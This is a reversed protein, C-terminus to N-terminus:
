LAWLRWDRDITQPVSLTQDSTNVCHVLSECYDVHSADNAASFTRMNITQGTLRHTFLCRCSLSQSFYIM